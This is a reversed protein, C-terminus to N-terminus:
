KQANESRKDKLFAQVVKVAIGKRVHYQIRNAKLQNQMKNGFKGAIVTTCSEKLLLDVVGASARRGRSQAPNKISKLFIGNEDFILYYPARGATMSIEAHASDGVAAVAIRDSSKTDDAMSNDTLCLSQQVQFAGLIFFLGITAIKKMM